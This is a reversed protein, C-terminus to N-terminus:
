FIIDFRILDYKNLKADQLTLSYFDRINIQALLM